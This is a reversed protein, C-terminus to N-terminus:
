VEYFMWIFWKYFSLKWSLFQIKHVLNQSFKLIWNWPFNKFHSLFEYIKKKREELGVHSSSEPSRREFKRKSNKTQFIPDWIRRILHNSPSKKVFKWFQPSPRKLTIATLEILRSSSSASFMLEATLKKHSEIDEPSDVRIIITHFKTLFHLQNKEATTNMTRLLKLRVDQSSEFGKTINHPSTLIPKDVRALQPNIKYMPLCSHCAMLIPSFLFM